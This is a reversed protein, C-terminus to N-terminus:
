DIWIPFPNYKSAQVLMTVGTGDALMSYVTFIRNLVSGEHTVFLMMSGDPSWIIERKVELDDDTLQVPNNGDPDMIFIETTNDELLGVFAIKSGDPSWVPSPYYLVSSAEVDVRADYIKHVNSGDANALCIGQYNEVSILGDADAPQQLTSGCTFILQSGDPSWQPFHPRSVGEPLILKFGGSGDTNVVRIFADVPTNSDFIKDDSLSTSSKYAIHTSDPSWVPYVDLNPSISLNIIGTGDANMVFIDYDTNGMQSMFLIKSGDPSYIPNWEYQSRSTLQIVNSGDANMRYINSNGVSEDYGEFVIFQRDPSYDFTGEAMENASVRVQDSGDTAITYIHAIGTDSTAFAIHRVPILTPTPAEEVALTVDKDSLAAETLEPSGKSTCSSISVVFLLLLIILLRSHKM